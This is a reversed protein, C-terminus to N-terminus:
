VRGSFWSRYGSGHRRGMRHYTVTRMCAGIGFYEGNGDDETQLEPPGFSEGRVHMESIIAQRADEIEAASFKTEDGHDPEIMNELGIEASYSTQSTANVEVTADVTIADYGIAMDIGVM